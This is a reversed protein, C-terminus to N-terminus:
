EGASLDIWDKGVRAKGISLPVVLTAKAIINLAALCVSLYDLVLVEMRGPGIKRVVTGAGGTHRSVSLKGTRKLIEL